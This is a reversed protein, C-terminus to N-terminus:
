GRRQALYAKTFGLLSLPVAIARGESDPFSLVAERGRVFAPLVTADLRLYALCRGEGCADVAAAARAMGDVRVLVGEGEPIEPSISVLMAPVGPESLWGARAVVEFGGAAATQEMVCRPNPPPRPVGAEGPRCVVDWDRFSRREVPEEPGPPAWVSAGALLSAVIGAWLLQSM